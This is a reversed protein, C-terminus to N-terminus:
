RAIVFPITTGDNLVIRYHRLGRKLASSVGDHYNPDSSEFKALV